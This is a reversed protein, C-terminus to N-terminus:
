FPFQQDSRTPQDDYKRQKGIGLKMVKMETELCDILTTHYRILTKIEQIFRMVTNHLCSM